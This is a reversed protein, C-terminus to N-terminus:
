TGETDVKGKARLIPIFLVDLNTGGEATRGHRFLRWLFSLQRGGDAGKSWHIAPFVEVATDGNVRERHM